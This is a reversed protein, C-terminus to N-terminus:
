KGAPKFLANGAGLVRWNRQRPEKVLTRGSERKVRANEIVSWGTGGVYYGYTAIDGRQEGVIEEVDYGGDAIFAERSRHMEDRSRMQQLMYIATDEHSESAAALAPIRGKFSDNYPYKGAETLEDRIREYDAFLPRVQEHNDYDGDWVFPEAPGSLTVAAETQQKAAFHARNTTPQGAEGKRTIHDTM